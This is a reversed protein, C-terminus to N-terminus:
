WLPNAKHDIERGNLSKIIEMVSLQYIQKKQVPSPTGQKLAEAVSNVDLDTMMSIVFEPALNGHLSKEIFYEKVLAINTKHYKREPRDNLRNYVNDYLWKRLRQFTIAVESKSFSVEGKQLSEEILATVCIDIAKRQFNEEDVSGFIALYEEPLTLKMADLLGTRKFDLIDKFLYALKDAIAVLYAENSLKQGNGLSNQELSHYLIAKVVEKTLNLGEVEQLIIVGNLSHSIGLIENGHPGYPGHGVDHGFSGTECFDPDLGLFCATEVSISAVMDTHSRRNSIHNNIPTSIVQMKGPLRSLAASRMIKIKDLVFPKISFLRQDPDRAIDLKRGGTATLPNLQAHWTDLRRQATRFRRTTFHNCNRDNVTTKQCAGGYKELSSQKM